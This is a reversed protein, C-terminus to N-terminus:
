LSLRVTSSKKKEVTSTVQDTRQLSTITRQDAFTSGIQNFEKSSIKNKEDELLKTFNSM